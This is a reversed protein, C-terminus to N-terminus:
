LISFVFLKNKTRLVVIGLNHYEEEEEARSREEPGYNIEADTVTVLNEEAMEPNEEADLEEKIEYECFDDLIEDIVPSLPWYKANLEINMSRLYADLSFLKIDLLTM